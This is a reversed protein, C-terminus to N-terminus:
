LSNSEVRSALRWDRMVLRVRYPSSSAQVRAPLLTGYSTEFRQYELMWDGSRASALSGDAAFVAGASSGPPVLGRIWWALDEIPIPWGVAAEVLPDPSSGFLEGVESGELHAFGPGFSLRWQRGGTVTRLSVEHVDGDATWDFALSGGRQGDSLAARGSVQWYSHEAFLAQREALWSGEPRTERVACATLLPVLLGLLAVPKWSM